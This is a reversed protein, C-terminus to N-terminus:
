FSHLLMKVAAKNHKVIIRTAYAIFFICALNLDPLDTTAVECPKDEHEEKFVWKSWHLIAQVISGTSRFYNWCTDKTIKSNRLCNGHKTQTTKDFESVTGGTNQPPDMYNWMGRLQQGHFLGLCPGIRICICTYIYIYM